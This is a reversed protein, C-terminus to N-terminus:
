EEIIIVPINTYYIESIIHKYYVELNKYNYARLIYVSLDVSNLLNCYSIEYNFISKIDGLFIKYGNIIFIEDNLKVNKSKGSSYIKNNFNNLFLVVDGYDKYSWSSATAIFNIKENQFEM